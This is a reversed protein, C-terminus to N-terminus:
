WVGKLFVRLDAEGSQFAESEGEYIIVAFFITQNSKTLFKKKSLNDLCNIIFTSCYLQLTVSNSHPIDHVACLQLTKGL